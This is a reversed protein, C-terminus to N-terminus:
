YDDGRIRSGGMLEDVVLSAESEDWDLEPLVRERLVAEQALILEDLDTVRVGNFTM